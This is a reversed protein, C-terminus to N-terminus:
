QIEKTEFHGKRTEEGWRSLKVKSSHAEKGLCWVLLRSCTRVGPMGWVPKRHMLPVTLISTNIFSRRCGIFGLCGTCSTSYNRSKESNFVPTFNLIWKSLPTTNQCLHQMVLSSFYFCICFLFIDWWLHIKILSPERLKGLSSCVSPARCFTGEEAEGGSEGPSHSQALSLRFRKFPLVM